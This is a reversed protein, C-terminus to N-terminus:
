TTQLTPAKEEPEGMHIAQAYVPLLRLPPLTLQRLKLTGLLLLNLISTLCWSSSGTNETLM